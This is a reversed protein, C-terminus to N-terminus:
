LVVANKHRSKGTYSVHSVPVSSRLWCRSHLVTHLERFVDPFSGLFTESIEALVLPASENFFLYFYFYLM